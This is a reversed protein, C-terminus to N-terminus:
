KKMTNIKDKVSAVVGQAKGELEMKKDGTIKGTKEKVAAEVKEKKIELTKKIDGM